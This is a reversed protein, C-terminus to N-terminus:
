VVRVAKEKRTRRYSLFGLGFFGAIMMAWTAPEPVPGEAGVPNINLNNNIGFGSADNYVLGGATGDISQFRAFAADLSLSALQTGFTLSFTGDASEGNDLGEGAGGACTAGAAACFDVVGLFGAQVGTLANTFLDTADASLPNPTTNLGFSSLRSDFNVGSTTNTIDYNFNWTLGNNTLGTYELFLSATLGPVVVDAQGVEVIGQISTTGFSGVDTSQITVASAPSALAAVAVVTALCTKRLMFDEKRSPFVTRTLHGVVCM